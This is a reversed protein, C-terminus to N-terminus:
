HGSLPIFITTPLSPRAPSIHSTYNCIITLPAKGYDCLLFLVSLCLAFCSLLSFSPPLTLPLFLTYLSPSTLFLPPLAVTPLPQGGGSHRVAADESADERSLAPSPPVPTPSFPFTPKTDLSFCLIFHVTFSFCIYMYIATYIALYEMM